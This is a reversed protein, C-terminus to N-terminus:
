RVDSRAWQCRCNEHLKESYYDTNVDIYFPMLNTSYLYQWFVTMQLYSMEM